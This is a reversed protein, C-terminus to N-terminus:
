IAEPKPGLTLGSLGTFGTNGVLTGAGTATDIVYLNTGIGHNSEVAYLLGDPGYKLGGLAYGTLGVLTAEGTTLNITYLGSSGGRGGGSVGYMINNTKDYALGTMATQGTGFEGVLTSTGTFPDFTGLQANNTGDYASGYCTTGVYELGTWTYSDPIIAGITTATLIDFEIGQFSGDRDQAFARGTNFDYIIETIGGITDLTGVLTGAGTTTDITFINGSIDSGYLVVSSRQPSPGNGPTCATTFLMSFVIMGVVFFRNIWCITSKM